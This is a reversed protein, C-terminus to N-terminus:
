TLQEAKGANSGPEESVAALLYQYRTAGDFVYYAHGEQPTSPAQHIIPKGLEDAVTILDEMSGLSITKEGEIPTQSTAEAMREGYMKRARLVEREIQPPAAPRSMIYLVVSFLFFLSFLGAVAASATRAESVSLGLYRNPNPIPGKEGISGPQTKALEKDWELLDGGLTSKMTQSFVEDIQGSDTQAVTHVDAKITLRPPSASVGTEWGITSALEALRNLDLPFSISFDGSKQTRPVLVVKKAWVEPNELLATIEVEEAIQNVPRDSKFRYSFTVEMRDVLKSFIVDGPGMTIPAAAAPPTPPAVSPPRLTIAGFPCDPKLHVEYNFGGQQQYSLGGSFGPEVHSLRGDVELLSGKPRMALSQAFAEFIAGSDTQAITYVSANVTVETASAIEEMNLAFAISFDGGRSTRPVLTIEEQEAGPGKVIASVEVEESVARVPRDPVFRYAFTFSLSDIMEAPYKLNAPPPEQPEPGFLHSPKSIFLTISGAKTSM